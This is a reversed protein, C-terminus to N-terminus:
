NIITLTRNPTSLILRRGHRALSFVERNVHGLALIGCPHVYLPVGASCFMFKESFFSRSLCCSINDLASNLDKTCMARSANPLEVGFEVPKPSPIRSTSAKLHKSRYCNSSPCIWTEHHSSGGWTRTSHELRRQFSCRQKLEARLAKDIANKATPEVTSIAKRLATM